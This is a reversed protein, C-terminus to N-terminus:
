SILYKTNVPKTSVEPTKAAQYKAIYIDAHALYFILVILSNLRLDAFTKGTVNKGNVHLM